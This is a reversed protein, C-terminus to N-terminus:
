YQDIAELTVYTGSTVGWGRAYIYYVNKTVLQQDTSLTSGVASSSVNPNDNYVIYYRSPQNSNEGTGTGTLILNQGTTIVGNGYPETTTKTNDWTATTLPNVTSAMSSLTYAGNANASFTPQSAASLLGEGYRLAAEASQFAVEKDNQNATMREELATSRTAALGLVTLVLLMLLSIVLVVGRQRAPFSPSTNKM